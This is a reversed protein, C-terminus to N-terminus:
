GSQRRVLFRLDVLQATGSVSSAWFEFFMEGSPQFAANNTNSTVIVNTITSLVVSPGNAVSAAVSATPNFVPNANASTSNVCEVFAVNWTVADGGGDPAYWTVVCDLSSPVWDDPLPFHDQVTCSGTTGFDLAGFLLGNSQTVIVPTPPNGSPFSFGAIATGAQALAAKFICHYPKPSNRYGSNARNLTDSISATASSIAQNLYSLTVPDSPNTPNPLNTIANGQANLTGQLKGAQGNIQTIINNISNAVNTGLQVYDTATGVQIYKIPM